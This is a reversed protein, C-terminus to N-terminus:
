LGALRISLSLDLLDPANGNKELSLVLTDLPRLIRFQEHWVISDLSATEWKLIPKTYAVDGIERLSMTPTSSAGDLVRRARSLYFHWYNDEDCAADESVSFCVSLLKCPIPISAVNANWDTSTIGLISWTVFQDEALAQTGANYTAAFWALREEMDRLAMADLPTSPDGSQRTPDFDQWQKVEFEPAPM